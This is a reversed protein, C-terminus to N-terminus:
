KLIRELRKWFDVSSVNLKKLIELTEIIDLRREASEYKSIYSQPKKLKQALQVQTINKEKRIQILLELFSRYASTFISKTMDIGKKLFLVQCTFYGM